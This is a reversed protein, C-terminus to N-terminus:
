LLVAVAVLLLGVALLVLVVEDETTERHLSLISGVVGSRVAGLGRGIAAAASAVLVAADELVTTSGRKLTCYVDTARGMEREKLEAPEVTSGPLM